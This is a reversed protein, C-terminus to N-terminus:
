GSPRRIPLTGAGARGAARVSGAPPASAVARWPGVVPAGARRVILPRAGGDRRAHRGRPPALAEVGAALPLVEIETRIPIAAALDLFERADDRTYNAVSRLSREWWLDEYAFAPIGDLHIANIAM